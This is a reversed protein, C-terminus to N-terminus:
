IDEAETSIVLLTILFIGNSSKSVEIEDNTLHFKVGFFTKFFFIGEQLILDKVFSEGATITLMKKSKSYAVFDSKADSQFKNSSMKELHEEDLLEKLDDSMYITNDPNM